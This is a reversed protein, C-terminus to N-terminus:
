LMRTMKSCGDYFLQVSCLVNIAYISFELRIIYFKRAKLKWSMTYSGPWPFYKLWETSENNRLTGLAKSLSPVSSKKFTANLLLVPGIMAQYKNM